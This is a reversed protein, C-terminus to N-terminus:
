KERIIYFSGLDHFQVAHFNIRELLNALKALNYVTSVGCNEM